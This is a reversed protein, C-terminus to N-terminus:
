ASTPLDGEDAWGFSIQQAFEQAGNEFLVALHTANLQAVATYGAPGPQVVNGTSWTHGEDTSVFLALDARAVASAPAAQVIRRYSATDYRSAGSVVGTWNTVVADPLTTTGFVTFNTAGNVSAAFLKHGTENGMNREIAVIAADAGSGTGAWATSVAQVVSAERSGEQDSIATIRWTAGHDDSALMCSYCGPCAIDGGGVAAAAAAAAGTSSHCVYPVILRGATGGCSPSACLSADIVIGNAVAPYASNYGAPLPFNIATSQWTAGADHSVWYLTASGQQVLLHTVATAPDYVAALFDISPSTYLTQLPGWTAGNDASRRLVIMKVNGDNTGSCYTNNRGEAFALLTGPTTVLVPQRFCPPYSVYAQFVPVAHFAAAAACVAAVALARAAM